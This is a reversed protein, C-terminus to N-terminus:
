ATSGLFADLTQVFAAPADLVLHHYAGPIEVLTATPIAARLREAMDPPLVPSLEGRM